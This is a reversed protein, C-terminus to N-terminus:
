KHFHVTACPKVLPAEFRNFANRWARGVEGEILRGAALVRLEAGPESTDMATPVHRHGYRLVDVTGDVLLRRVEHHDALHDLTRM